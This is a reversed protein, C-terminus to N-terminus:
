AYPSIRPPMGNEEETHDPGTRAFRYSVSQEGRAEQGKELGFREDPAHGHGWVSRTIRLPLGTRHPGRQKDIINMTVKNLIVLREDGNKVGAKESRGGFGAPILFVSTNLEPVRMEWDWRLKCVEQERCGSNVKYLAM